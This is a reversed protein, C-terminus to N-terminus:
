LSGLALEPHHLLAAIKSRLVHRTLLHPLNAVTVMLKDRQAGFEHVQEQHGFLRL